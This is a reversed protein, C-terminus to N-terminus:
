LGGAGREGLKGLVNRRRPADLKKLVRRVHTKVTSQKIGLLGGIEKDLLGAPLLTAVERERDTLAGVTAPRDAQSAQLRLEGLREIVLTLLSVSCTPRGQAVGRITALLEAYPADQELYAMAGAEIWRVLDRESQRYGLVILATAPLLAKIEWVLQDGHIGDIGAHVVLVDLARGNLRRLLQHLSGVAAVFDVEQETKLREAITERVLRSDSLISVSSKQPQVKM